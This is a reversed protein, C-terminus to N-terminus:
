EELRMESCGLLWGRQVVLPEGLQGADNGLSWALPWLYLSTPLGWGWAAWLCDPFVHLSLHTCPNPLESPLFSVGCQPCRSPLHPPFSGSSHRWPHLPNGRLQPPRHLADRWQPHLFGLEMTSLASHALGHTTFSFSPLLCIGPVAPIVVTYSIHSWQLNGWCKCCPRTSMALVKFPACWSSSSSFPGLDWLRSSFFWDNRVNFIRDDTMKALCKLYKPPIIVSYPHGTLM